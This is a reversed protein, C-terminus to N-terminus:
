MNFGSVLSGILLSWGDVLVFMMIKFPMSITTPPLMMMGMSMLTSAVVIDIVLFPIYLLFGIQFGTKLESLIFAPVVTTFPVKEVFEEDNQSELEEASDTLNIFFSMSDNSTNKLMWTKIPKSAQGLAEVTTYEGNKYPVYVTENIEAFVPSMVFLTLFLSLGVLVQNPPTQQLGMANRLMSFSIIFRTFCTLMVLLSPALTLLTILIILDLTNSSNNVDLYELITDAEDRPNSYEDDDDTDSEDVNTRSIIDEVRAEDDAAATVTNDGPAAADYGSVQTVMTEPEYACARMGTGPVGCFVAISVAAACFKAFIGNM